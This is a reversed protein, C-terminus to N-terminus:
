PNAASHSDEIAAVIAQVTELEQMEVETAGASMHEKVLKMLIKGPIGLSDHAEKRIDGISEAETKMKSKCLAIEEIFGELQKRTAPNGKITALSFEVKNGKPKRM